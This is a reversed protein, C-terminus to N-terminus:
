AHESGRLEPQCDYSKLLKMLMTTVPEIKEQVLPSLATSTALSQPTVCIFHLNEPAQGRLECIELVELLGLQHPSLRLQMRGAKIDDKAFTHLTGPPTTSNIVDIVILPDCEEMLPAMYIGATGGDVLTVNDPFCYNQELHRLLHIGFGEDTLLLNGVGLIGIKKAM